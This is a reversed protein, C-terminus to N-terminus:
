KKCFGCGSCVGNEVKSRCIHCIGENKKPAEKQPIKEGPILKDKEELKKAEDETIVEAEDPLKDTEGNLFAKTEDSVGEPISEDSENEEKQEESDNINEGDQENNQAEQENESGKQEDNSGDQENEEPIPHVGGDGAVIVDKEQAEETLNENNGEGKNEVEAIKTKLTEVNWATFVGKLGVAYAKAILEKQEQEPLDSVKQKQEAM